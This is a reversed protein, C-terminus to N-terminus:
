LDGNGSAFSAPKGTWYHLKRNNTGGAVRITDGAVGTELFERGSNRGLGQSQALAEFETKTIGPNEKLLDCLRETPSKRVETQDVCFVGDSYRMHLVPAVPFRQKFPRLELASLRAGDGLNTLKYGIDISAKFDSSGRYDRSADSKGIHHLLVLSAGMFTLRRYQGMFRRTENSDNESGPHFAIVSDVIILPKPDCRAVWESVIAGGASSPDDGVWQGWVRFGPHTKIGLRDFRERVAPRPNEGDLILVPRRSTSLGMFPLGLSVAHGASALFTSKGAGPESTVMHLAGQPFIHDVVWEISSGGAEELLPVDEIRHINGLGHFNGTGDFRDRDWEDSLADIDLETEVERRM